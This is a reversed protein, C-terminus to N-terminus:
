PAGVDNIDRAELVRGEFGDKAVRIMARGVTVSDTVGGPFLRQLMPYFPGVIGYMVAYLRTKSRVGRLPQIYGPRFNYVGGFPMSLLKNEIEGKVRAWMIRGKESGDTGSGSIYCFVSDPNAELVAEAARLTLDYTIRRYEEERMGASSVGLCFFCVDHGALRDALDSYDFFDDHVVETLKAHVHGSPRRVLSLVSEIAPDDLCEMLVGAGVMGTGGFLIVKM